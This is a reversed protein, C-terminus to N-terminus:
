RDHMSDDERMKSRGSGLEQEEQSRDRNGRKPSRRRPRYDNPREDEYESPRHRTKREEEAVDHDAHYGRSHSRRHHRGDRRPRRSEDDKGDGDKKDGRPKHRHHRHKHTKDSRKGEKVRALALAVEDKKDEILFAKMPDDEDHEQIIKALEREEKIMPREEESESESTRRRKRSSEGDDERIQRTAGQPDVVGDPEDDRKKYRTHDVKLTRGMIVAGGLNDVALDTSRQDEYKLFAFGRSKGSEKDRVLNIYTPEGFQSFITIV